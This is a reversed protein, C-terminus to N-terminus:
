DVECQLKLLLDELFDKKFELMLALLVNRGKLVDAVTLITSIVIQRGGEM